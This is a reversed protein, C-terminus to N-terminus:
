HELDFEKFDHVLKGSGLGRVTSRSLMESSRTSKEM